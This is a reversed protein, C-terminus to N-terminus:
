QNTSSLLGLSEDHGAREYMQMGMGFIRHEVAGGLDPRHQGRRDRQALRRNGAGVVAIDEAV